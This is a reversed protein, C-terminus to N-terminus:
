AALRAGRKFSDVPARFMKGNKEFLVSKYGSKMGVVKVISGAYHVNQGLMKEDLGYVGCMDKYRQAEPSEGSLSAEVKGTFATETFRVSGLKMAFGHKAAVQALAADIEIRISQLTPRDFKKLSIMTM